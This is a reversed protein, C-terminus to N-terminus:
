YMVLSVTLASTSDVMTIKQSNNAQQAGSSHECAPHLGSV